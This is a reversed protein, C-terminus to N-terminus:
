RDQGEADPAQDPEAHDGKAAFLMDADTSSHPLVFM